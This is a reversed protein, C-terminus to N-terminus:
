VFNFHDFPVNCSDLQSCQQPWQLLSMNQNCYGWHELNSSCWHLLFFTSKSLTWSPNECFLYCLTRKFTDNLSPIEYSKQLIPTCFVPLFLRYMSGNRRTTFAAISNLRERTREQLLKRTSILEQRARCM